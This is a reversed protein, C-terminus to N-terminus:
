ELSQVGPKGDVWAEIEKGDKIIKSGVVEAGVKAAYKKLERRYEIFSRIEEYSLTSMTKATETPGSHVHLHNETTNNQTLNLQQVKELIQALGGEENPLGLARRYIQQSKEVATVCNLLDVSRLPLSIPDGYESEGTDKNKRKLRTTTGKALMEVAKALSLKSAQVHQEQVEAILDIHRKAVSETIKDQIRARESAWTDLGGLKEIVIHEAQHLNFGKIEMLFKYPAMQPYKIAWEIRLMEAEWQHREKGGTDKPGRTAMSFLDCPVPKGASKRKKNPDFLGVSDQPGSPQSTKVVQDTKQKKAMGRRNRIVSNSTICKTSQMITNGM